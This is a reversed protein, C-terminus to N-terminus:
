FSSRGRKRAELRVVAIEISNATAFRLLSLVVDFHGELQQRLGEPTRNSEDYRVIGARQLFASRLDAIELGNHVGGRPDRV